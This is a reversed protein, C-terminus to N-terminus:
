PPSTPCNWPDVGCRDSGKCSPIQKSFEALKQSTTNLETREKEWEQKWICAQKLQKLVDQDLDDSFKAGAVDTDFLCAGTLEAKTLDAERLSAWKIKANPFKTGILKARGLNSCSFNADGFDAGSAQLDRLDMGTLRISKM